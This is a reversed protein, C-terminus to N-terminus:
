AGGARAVAAARSPARGVPAHSAAGLDMEPERRERSVALLGLIFPFVQVRQRALLGFNGFNSFAIVFLLSYVSVFALYPARRRPMLNGLKRWHRVFLFLLLTGELSAALAQLNSAEFPLPRFLVSFAALPLDAPSRAGVAQFSSGDYASTQQRTREFVEEVGAGDELKFKSEVTSLVLGFVVLLTLLGAVKAIPAAFSPRRAGTFLYAVGLAVVLTIAIHPRVVASGAIGGALWLVAGRRRSVLQAVGYATMGLVLTMWAEKGISSPWFAMSPLFFILAAYRRRDGRPVALRFACYLLCLGLYGLWSYVLFGGLRTPGTLTYIVGTLIEIFGTGVLQQTSDLTFNGNRFGEALAGGVRDYVFADGGGYVSFVMAFRALTGFFKFALGGVIISRVRRDSESRIIRLVLPVTPLALLHAVLVGGAIDYTSQLLWATIVVYFLCGVLIFAHVRISDGHRVLRPLSATM